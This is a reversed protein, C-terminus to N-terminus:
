VIHFPNGAIEEPAAQYLADLFYAAFTGPGGARRAAERGATNFAQVATLAAFFPTAVAAYVATVGGLACGSGTVKTFLESGGESMVTTHGDTVLDAPGSVAVAGNTFRALSEAALRAERVSDTADVGRVGDAAMGSDLQWLNALAIIESANGRVVAPPEKRFSLLLERRMGGLGIGVPDLVWPHDHDALSHVTLPLTKEYIPLLTGMNIYMASGLAAMGAGEDPLYVMAASGGAALQANAVFNITVSNTISPVLPTTDKAKRVAGLIGQKIEELEMAM